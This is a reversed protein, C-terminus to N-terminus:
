DIVEVNMHMLHHGVGCYENCLVLYDGTKKFTYELTNIYGPVVMMNVNTGPITFSHVVDKSVVNFIVKKGKPIQIKNPNYGFVQAVINVQYTNEDIQVIGPNDFPPTKDVIQPDITKLGQPTEHGKAFNYFGLVILFIILAGVGFTLWIKEYRHMHM